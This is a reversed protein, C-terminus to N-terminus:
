HLRFPLLHLGFLFDHAEAKEKLTTSTNIAEVAAKALFKYFDDASAKSMVIIDDASLVQDHSHLYFNNTEFKSLRDLEEQTRIPILVDIGKM